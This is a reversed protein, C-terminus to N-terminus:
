KLISGIDQDLAFKRQEIAKLSVMAAVPNSISAAQFLTKETAPANPEIAPIGWSRAEAIAFDHIVALSVAPVHYYAMAEPLTLPDAGQRNPSQPSSITSIM